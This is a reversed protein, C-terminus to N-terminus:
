NFICSNPIVGVEYTKQQEGYTDYVIVNSASSYSQVDCAWIYGTSPDVDIGYFAQEILPSSPISTDTIDMTYLGTATTFYLIDKDGNIAISKTSTSPSEIDYSTVSYDDTDIVSLGANTVTSGLYNGEDDYNYSTAGGCYVWLNGKADIVMDKPYDKVEITQTVTNTSLDIVSVSNDNSWGGSNAVFLKDDNIIMKEPGQGVEITDTIAFTSLSITYVVGDYAGNSVYAYDDGITIERPYSLNNISTVYAMTTRDLVLVYGASSSTTVTVFLYDDNYTMTEAYEGLDISNVLNFVNNTVSDNSTNIFSISGTGSGENLVLVGDTNDYYVTSDNNNDDDDCAVILLSFLTLLVSLKLYTKM